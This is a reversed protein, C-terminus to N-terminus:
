CKLLLWRKIGIWQQMTCPHKVMRHFCLIQDCFTAMQLIHKPSVSWPGLISRRGMRWCFSWWRWKWLLCQKRCPHIVLSCFCFICDCGASMELHHKTSVLLTWVISPLGMRWCFSPWRWIGMGLQMTCPHKVMRHFCLIQYGWASMPLIHGTSVLWRGM